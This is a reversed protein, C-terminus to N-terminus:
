IQIIITLKQESINEQFMEYEFIGLGRWSYCLDPVSLYRGSQSGMAGM